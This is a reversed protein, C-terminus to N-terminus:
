NSVNSRDKPSLPPLERGILCYPLKAQLSINILQHVRLFAVISKGFYDSPGLHGVEVPPEADVSGGGSRQQMVVARGEVIIYFDDGPEGQRVITEGDEFGCPELADAVTYREWKELSETWVFLKFVSKLRCKECYIQCKEKVWFPSKPFSNKTCRANESPLDWLSVDTRIAISVGCNLTRKPQLFPCNFLIGKEGRRFRNDGKVTAARPTGYILALEGFSGGEGIVTVMNGDVFVQIIRLFFAYFLRTLYSVCRICQRGM